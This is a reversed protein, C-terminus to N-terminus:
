SALVVPTGAPVDLLRLYRGGSALEIELPIGTLDRTGTNELRLSGEAVMFGHAEPAYGLSWWDYVAAPTAKAGYTAELVERVGPADNATYPRLHIQVDSGTTM